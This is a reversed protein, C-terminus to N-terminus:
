PVIAEHDPPTPSQDWTRGDLLRGGAGPTPGGWQKFFFAVEAAIAQERLSRVWAPDVPRHGPGSEGGVIIWDVRPFCVAGHADFAHLELEVWKPALDIADLLPECSLFRRQVL